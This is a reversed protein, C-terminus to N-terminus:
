VEWLPRNERPHSAHPPLPTFMMLVHEDNFLLPSPHYHNHFMACIDDRREAGKGGCAEGGGRADRADGADGGVSVATHYRRVRVSASDGAYEDQLKQNWRMQPFSNPFALWSACDTTEDRGFYLQHRLLRSPARGDDVCASRDIASPFPLMRAQTSSVQLDPSALHWRSYGM